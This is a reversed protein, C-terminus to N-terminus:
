CLRLLKTQFTPILIDENTDYVNLADMLMLTSSNRSM